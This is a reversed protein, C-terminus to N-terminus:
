ERNSVEQKLYSVVPTVQSSATVRHANSLAVNAAIRFAFSSFKTRSSCLFAPDVTSVHIPVFM